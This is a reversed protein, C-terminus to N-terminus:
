IRFRWSLLFLIVVLGILLYIWLQPSDTRIIVPDGTMASTQQEEIQAIISPVTELNSLSFYEGGNAELDEKMQSAQLADTPFEPNIGYVNVNSENALVMADPLTILEEGATVNDTALIISRSRETDESNDFSFTCAALGDGILSSGQPGVTFTIVDYGNEYDGNLGIRVKEMQEKVYEYDDTLPFVQNAITNFAVLAIREGKFGDVLENFRSLISLNVSTMSGSVDLCLVIDRNYKIPEEVTINVPKAAVISATLGFLLSVTLLVLLGKRYNNFAKKYVETQTLRNTNAFLMKKTSTKNQSLLAIVSVVTIIVVLGVIVMWWYELVM